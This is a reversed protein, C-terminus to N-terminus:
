KHLNGPHESQFTRGEGLSGVQSQNDSAKTDTWGLTIEGTLWGLSDTPKACACCFVTHGEREDGIQSSWVFSM